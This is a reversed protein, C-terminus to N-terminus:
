KEDKLHIEYDPYKNKLIWKLHSRDNAEIILPFHWGDIPHNYQLLLSRTKENFSKVIREDDTKIENYSEETIEKLGYRKFFRVDIGNQLEYKERNQIRNNKLEHSMAVGSMYWSKLAKDRTKSCKDLLETELREVDDMIKDSPNREENLTYFYYKNIDVM